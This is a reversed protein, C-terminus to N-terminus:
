HGARRTGGEISTRRAGASCSGFIEAGQASILSDACFGGVRFVGGRRLVGIHRQIVGSVGVHIKM